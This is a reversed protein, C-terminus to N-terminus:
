GAAAPKAPARSPAPKKDFFDDDDDDGFLSQPIDNFNFRAAAHPPTCRPAPRQRNQLLPLVPHHKRLHPLKKAVVLFPIMTTTTELCPREEWLLSQLQLPHQLLLNLWLRLPSPKAVVLFPIMTTTTMELCPREEWLLSRLLSRLQLPHQLLLNLWLRLPSPKAVVLFPIM